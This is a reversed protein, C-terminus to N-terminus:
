DLDAETVLRVVETSSRAELRDIVNARHIEVTRPSIGLHNAIEKSSYGHALGRMVQHERPSLRSILKLARARRERRMHEANTRGIAEPLRAAVADPDFPLRWYDVAGARIADVVRELTAEASVAVLPFWDGRQTMLAASKEIADEEDHVLLMSRRGPWYRELETTDEVPVTYAFWSISNFITARLRADSAVVVVSRVEDLENRDLIPSISNM